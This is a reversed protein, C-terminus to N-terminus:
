TATRRSHQIIYKLQFTGARGASSCLGRLVSRCLVICAPTGQHWAKIYFTKPNGFYQGFHAADLTASMVLLRVAAGRRLQMGKLLGLLVDSGVTREHAEDVIVVQLM